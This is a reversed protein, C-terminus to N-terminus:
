ARKYVLIFMHEVIITISYLKLNSLKIYVSNNKNM